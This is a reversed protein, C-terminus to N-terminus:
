TTEKPKPGYQEQFSQVSQALRSNCLICLDQITVDKDKHVDYFKFYMEQRSAKYKEYNVDCYGQCIDCKIAKM